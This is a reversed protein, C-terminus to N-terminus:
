SPADPPGEEPSARWRGDARLKALLEDWHGKYGSDRAISKESAARAARYFCNFADECQEILSIVSM